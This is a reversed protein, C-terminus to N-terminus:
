VIHSASHLSRIKEPITAESLSRFGQQSHERFTHKLDLVLSERHTIKGDCVVKKQSIANNIISLIMHNIYNKTMKLSQLIM